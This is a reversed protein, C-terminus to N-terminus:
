KRVEMGFGKRAFIKWLYVLVVSRLSHSIARRTYTVVRGYVIRADLAFVVRRSFLPKTKKPFSISDGDGAVGTRPGVDM